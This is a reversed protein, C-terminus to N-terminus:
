VKKPKSLQRKRKEWINIVKGDEGENNEVKPKTDGGTVLRKMFEALHQENLDFPFMGWHRCPITFDVYIKYGLNERLQKCVYYDESLYEGDVAGVKFVDFNKETLFVGRTYSPSKYYVESSECLDKAAQYSMLLVANGVRDVEALGTNSDFDYVKGVNLVPMGESDFGKLPVPAGVVDLGHKILAPVSNPNTLGIDADLWLLHTYKQSLYFYSIVSNRGRPILSENGPQVFDINVGESELAGRILSCMSSFYDTVLQCGYAPTGVLLSIM